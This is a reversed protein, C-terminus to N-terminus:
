YIHQLGLEEPRGRKSQCLDVLRALSPSDDCLSCTWSLLPLLTGQASPVNGTPDYTDGPCCGFISSSGTTFSSLLDALLAQDSYSPWCALSSSPQAWLVYHAVFSAGAHLCREVGSGGRGGWGLVVLKTALTLPVPPELCYDARKAEGTEGQSGRRLLRPGLFRTRSHGWTTLVYSKQWKKFFSLRKRLCSLKSCSKERPLLGLTYIGKALYQVLGCVGIWLKKLTCLVKVNIAM